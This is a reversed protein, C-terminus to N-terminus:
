PRPAYPDRGLMPIFGDLVDVGNGYFDAPCRSARDTSINDFYSQAAPADPLAYSAKHGFHYVFLQGFPYTIPGCCSPIILGNPEVRLWRTVINAKIGGHGYSISLANALDWWAEFVPAPGSYPCIGDLILTTGAPIEPIRSRIDSLFENQLRYSQVWFKALADIALAGSMGVFGVVASFLARRWVGSALSVLMCLLGVVSVAVGLTGAIAARNNIGDKAPNIPVLSYGAIFLIIGCGLCMLMKARSTMFAASPRDWSTYLRVFIVVGIFSATIVMTSDSYNRLVHWATSPLELLHYGYSYVFAKVTFHSIYVFYDAIGNRDLLAVYYAARPAWLAKVFIISAVALVIAGQRLAAKAITPGGVTLPWDTVLESAFLFATTALVLPLFVEYTLGSAIVCLIAFAEWGWFEGKRRRLAQLHAYIGLFTLCMSINTAHAAIWFRDTSYTPLLMYLVPIALSFARPQRLAILILYLLVLGTSFFIGNFLHYGLPDFGFLTYGLAYAFFQVPRIENDQSSNVAAFVGTLSQDPSLSMSSLLGWDDSYFGLGTIYNSLSLFAILILFLCDHVARQSLIRSTQVSMGRIGRSNLAINRRMSACRLSIRGCGAENAALREPQEGRPDPVRAKAKM